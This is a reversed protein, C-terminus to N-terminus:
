DGKIRCERGDVSHWNVILSIEQLNNKRARNVEERNKKRKDKCLLKVRFDKKKEWAEVPWIDGM